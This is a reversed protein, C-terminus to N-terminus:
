AVLTRVMACCGGAAHLAARYSAEGVYTDADIRGGGRECLARVFDIHEATHVLALEPRSAAPASVRECGLWDVAAMAAELVVVREATDPHQPAFASPDHELSSPHHVYLM